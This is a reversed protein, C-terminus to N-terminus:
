CKLIHFDFNNSNTYLINMAPTSLPAFICDKHPHCGKRAPRSKMMIMQRNVRDRMKSEFGGM